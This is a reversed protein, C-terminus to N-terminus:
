SIHGLDVGAVYTNDLDTGFIPLTGFVYNYLVGEPRPVIYGQEILDQLISTFTGSMIVTVSMNQNDNVVLKGSPFLTKWIPYLSNIKGDWANQARRAYLLLRYTADDLIPSVGGSPQFGVTRSQGILQGCVDLQVGVAFDLDYNNTIFALVNTLDDIPQWALQAFKILNPSLKYQSTLLNLYYGLPQKYILGYDGIGYGGSGYGSQGYFPM